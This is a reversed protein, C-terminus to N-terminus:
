PDLTPARHWPTNDIGSLRKVNGSLPTAHAAENARGVQEAEAVQHPFQAAIGLPQQLLVSNQRADLVHLVREHGVRRKGPHEVCAVSSSAHGSKPSRSDAHCPISM